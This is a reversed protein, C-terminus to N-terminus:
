TNGKGVDFRGGRFSLATFEPGKEIDEREKGMYKRNLLLVDGGEGFNPKLDGV